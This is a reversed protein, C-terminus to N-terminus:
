ISIFYYLHFVCLSRILLDNGDQSVAALMGVVDFMSPQRVLLDTRHNIEAGGVDASNTQSYLFFELFLFSIVSELGPLLMM